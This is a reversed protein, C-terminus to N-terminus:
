KKTYSLSSDIEYSPYFVDDWSINCNCGWNCHAVIIYKEDATRNTNTYYDYGVIDGKNIVDIVFVSHHKKLRLYDGIKVNDWTVGYSVKGNGNVENFLLAAFGACQGKCYAYRGSSHDDCPTETVNPYKKSPAHNNWYYGEPYKDRLKDIQKQLDNKVKIEYYFKESGNTVIICSFGKNLATIKGKSDVKVADPNSSTYTVNSGRLIFYNLSKTEGSYLSIEQTSDYWYDNYEQVVFRFLKEPKDLNAAVRLVARADSATVKGNGDTDAHLMTSNSCKSINASIRLILRADASTIKNDGNIDGSRMKEVSKFTYTGYEISSDYKSVITVTVTGEKLFSFEYINDSIDPANKIELVSPDSVIFEIENYDSYWDTSVYVYMKTNEDFKTNLESYSFGFEDYNLVSYIYVSSPLYGSKTSDCFECNFTIMYNTISDFVFNHEGYDGDKKVTEGCYVCTAEIVAPASCNGETVVVDNETEYHFCVGDETSEESFFLDNLDYASSFVCSLSLMLSIALIIFVSKKLTKKM